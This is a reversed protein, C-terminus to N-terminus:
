RLETTEDNENAEFEQDETVNQNSVITDIGNITEIHTNPSTARRLVPSDARRSQIEMLYSPAYADSHSFALCSCLYNTFLFSIYNLLM